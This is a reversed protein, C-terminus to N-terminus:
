EDLIRRGGRYARQVWGHEFQDRTVGRSSTAHAFVGSGLFVGVHTIRGRELTDFFVLDGEKLDPPAVRIGTTYQAGSARPLDVAVAERFVARVFASCDLCTHTDGGFLYPVGVWGDVSRGFLRDWGSFLAILPDGVLPAPRLQKPLAATPAPAPERSGRRKAPPEAPEETLIRTPKRREPPAVFSPPSEAKAKLEASLARYRDYFSADANNVEESQAVKSFDLAIDHRLEALDQRLDALAPDNQRRAEELAELRAELQAGRWLRDRLLPRMLARTERLQREVTPKMEPNVKGAALMQSWWNVYDPALDDSFYRPFNFAILRASEKPKRGEFRLRQYHIAVPAPVWSLVDNHADYAAAAVTKPDLRHFIGAAIVSKAATIAEDHGDVLARGGFSSRLAKEWANKEAASLDDRGAIYQLLNEGRAAPSTVDYAVLSRGALAVLLLAAVM